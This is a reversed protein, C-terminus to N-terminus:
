LVGEVSDMIKTYYNVITVFPMGTSQRHFYCSTERYSTSGKSRRENVSLASGLLGRVQNEQVARLIGRSM